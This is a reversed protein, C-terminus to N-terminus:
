RKKNIVSDVILLLTARNYLDMALLYQREQGHVLLLARDCCEEQLKPIFINSINDM